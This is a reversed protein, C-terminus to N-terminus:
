LKLNLRFAALQNLIANCVRLRFLIQLSMVQLSHVSAALTVYQSKNEAIRIGDLRISVLVYPPTFRSM